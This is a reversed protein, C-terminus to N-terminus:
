PQDVRLDRLDRPALSALDLRIALRAIFGRITAPIPFVGDTYHLRYNGAILYIAKSYVYARVRLDTGERKRPLLQFCSSPPRLFNLHSCRASLFSIM